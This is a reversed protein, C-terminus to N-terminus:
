DRTNTIISLVVDRTSEHYEHKVRMDDRAVDRQRQAITEIRADNRRIADRMRRRAIKADVNHERSLQAITFHEDIARANHVNNKEDNNNM